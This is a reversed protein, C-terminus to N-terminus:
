AFVVPIANYFFPIDRAQKATGKRWQFSSLAIDHGEEAEVQALCGDMAQPVQNLGPVRKNAEKPEEADSGAKPSRNGDDVKIDPVPFVAWCNHGSDLIGQHLYPACRIM